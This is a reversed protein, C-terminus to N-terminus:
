QIRGHVGTEYTEGKAIAKAIGFIQSFKNIQIDWYEAKTVGVKILRLNPDNIGEPFWATAIPTWLEELKQRDQVIEAYGTISAYIQKSPHSYTVHVLDRANIEAVMGSDAATFFWLYGNFEHQVHGMPRSHPEGDADFTTLMAVECEDLLKGLREFNNNEEQM